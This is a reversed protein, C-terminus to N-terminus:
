RNFRDNAGDVYFACYIMFIDYLVDYYIMICWLVDYNMMIYWLLSLFDFTDVFFCFPFSSSSSSCFHGYPLMYLESPALFLSFSYHYHSINFLISYYTPGLWDIQVETIFRDITYWLTIKYVLETLHSLLQGLSLYLM